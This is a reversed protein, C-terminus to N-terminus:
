SCRHNSLPNERVERTDNEREQGSEAFQSIIYHLDTISFKGLLKALLDVRLMVLFNFTFNLETWGKVREMGAKLFSENVEKLIVPYNSLILATAIGSGM